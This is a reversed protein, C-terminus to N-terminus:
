GGALLGGLAYVAAPGPEGGGLALAAGACAGAIAGGSERWCWAAALVFLVGVGEAPRFLGKSFGSLCTLAMGCCLLLAARERRGARWQGGTHLIGQCLLVFYACCGSLVAGCLAFVWAMADAPPAALLAAAGAAASCGFACLPAAVDQRAGFRRFALNFMGAAAILAMACVNAPHDTFAICGAAAGLVGMGLYRVGCAAAFAVAFPSGAAFVGGAFGANALLCGLLAAGAQRACFVAGRRLKDRTLPASFINGFAQPLGTKESAVAM